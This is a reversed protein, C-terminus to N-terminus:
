NFETRFNNDRFYLSLMGAVVSAAAALIHVDTCFYYNIDFNLDCVSEEMKNASINHLRKAM